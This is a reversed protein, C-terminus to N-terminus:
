SDLPRMNSDHRTYWKETLPPKRPDGKEIERGDDVNTGADAVFTYEDLNGFAQGLSVM